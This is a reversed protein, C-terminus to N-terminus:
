LSLGRGKDQAKKRTKAAKVEKDQAKGQEQKLAPGEVQRKVEELGRSVHLDNFDVLSQSKENATFEPVVVKGGVAAAAREAEIVGRNKVTGDTRIYQNNNACVTIAAQPFERRLAEAVPTLNEATFAVAVPKGTAMHLSAGSVYNEALLIESQALDQRGIGPLANETFSLLSYLGAKNQEPGTILHFLGDREGGILFRSEEGEIMQVNRIEGASNRMPIYLTSADQHVGFAEVELDKLFPHDNSAIGAGSIREFASAAIDNQMRVLSEDSERRQEERERYIQQIQEQSLEHGTAIWPTKEGTAFNQSWGYPQEGGYACYAGGLEMGVNVNASPLLPLRHIEGDLVPLEGQLDLGAKHLAKAFEQEPSLPRPMGPTERSNEVAQEPAKPLYRDALARADEEKAFLIPQGDKGEIHSWLGAKQVQASYAAVGDQNIDESRHAYVRVAEVPLWDRLKALDTGEPAFWSKAEKDWKAGLKKAQNKERYPVSLFTKEPAPREPLSRAAIDEEREPLPPAEPADLGMEKKRELGLIYDRIQEADRCARQIEFPDEKVAAIWSQVYAAHQGPDHPIGTDQALMWSAIEARLEERAYQESGFPGGERNLRSPHKTWHGLEHLATGYYKEADEFNERPPLHITDTRSRYFARNSQDHKIEAGSAAIISEGKDVPSWDFSKDTLQLPAIGDLQEANFVRAFRMIPKDLQTVIKQEKGDKDQIPRGKEDKLTEEKTWQFYIVPESKSGEKISLGVAKAQKFTMWRPDDYGSLALSLRNVGRYVTGSAPNHPALNASGSHWPQQWPATGAELREVIREAFDLHFPKRKGEEAPPNQTDSM